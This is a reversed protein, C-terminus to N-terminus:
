CTSPLGETIIAPVPLLLYTMCFLEYAMDLKNCMDNPLFLRKRHENTETHTRTLANFNSTSLYIPSFYQVPKRKRKKESDTKTHSNPKHTSLKINVASVAQQDHAWNQHNTAGLSIICLTKTISGSQGIQGTLGQRFVMYQFKFALSTVTYHEDTRLFM